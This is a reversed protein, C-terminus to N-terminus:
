MGDGLLTAIEDANAYNKPFDPLAQFSATITSKGSGNPGAFMVIKPASM